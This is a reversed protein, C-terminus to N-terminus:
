AGVATAAPPILRNLWLAPVFGSVNRDYVRIAPDAKPLLVRGVEVALSNPLAPFLHVTCDPGHTARIDHHM